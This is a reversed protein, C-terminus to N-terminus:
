AKAHGHRRLLELGEPFRPTFVLRYRGARDTLGPEMYDLDIIEGKGPTVHFAWLIHSLAMFLEMEALYMGVCVRRGEGFNWVRRQSQPGITEECITRDADHMWREPRFVRPEPYLEPDMHISYYNSIIWTGRHVVHGRFSFSETAMHPINIRGPPRFRFAERLICRLYPLSAQDAQGPLRDRGIVRDVEEQAKRQVEPYMSLTLILWHLGTSTTDTGAAQIDGVLTCTEVGDHGGRKEEELLTRALCSPPASAKGTGHMQKHFREIVENIAKNRKKQLRRVGGQFGWMIPVLYPFFEVVNKSPNGVQLTAETVELLDRCMKDEVSDMRQGFAVGLLSNLAYYGLLDRVEVGETEPSLSSEKKGLCHIEWCLHAAEAFVIPGQKEVEHKSLATSFLRRNARWQPGHPATVVGRHGNGLIGGFVYQHPRSAIISGHKRNMEIIADEHGLVLWERYGMRLYYAGGYEQTWAALKRHPIKGIQLLSGFLPLGKPGPRRASCPLHSTESHMLHKYMGSGLAILGLIVLYGM